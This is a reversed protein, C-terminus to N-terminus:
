VGKNKEFEKYRYYGAFGILIILVWTNIWYVDVDLTEGVNYIIQAEIFCLTVIIFTYIIRM